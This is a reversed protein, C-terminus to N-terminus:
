FVTGAAVRPTGTSFDLISFFHLRGAQKKEPFLESPTTTRAQQIELAGRTGRGTMRGRFAGASFTRLAHGGWLGSGMEPRTLAKWQSM